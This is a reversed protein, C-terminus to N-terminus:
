SIDEELYCKLSGLFQASLVGDVVRHDSCLTVKMIPKVSIMGDVSVVEQKLGGVALIAAEPPNIIATFEDIGFMGLNSVTFTGKGIGVLKGGRAQKIIAKTEAALEKWGLKDAKLVVPVVLGTDLATAVGINVNAEYRVRDEMFKSNVAPYQRLAMACGKVVLDNVSINDIKEKGKNYEDRFKMAKTMDISMTVNFHPTDRFSRQLNLGIARRMKTLEVETGPTPQGETPTYSAASPKNKAFETVDKGVVRGNPGTGPVMNIDAGLEKALRKANPSAFLRGERRLATSSVSGFTHLEVDKRTVKGRVGTGNVANIDIGKKEAVKAALPTAIVNKLETVRTQVPAAKKEEAKIAEDRAPIESGEPGIFGIVKGVAVMDDVRSLQQLLIGDGVSEVEMVAKDTEIELIVEGKKVTDGVAKRWLVIRVEETTQDPIPVKIEVAM